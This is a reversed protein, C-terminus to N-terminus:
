EQAEAAPAQGKSGVLQTLKAWADNTNVEYANELALVVKTKRENAKKRDDIVKKSYTESAIKGDETYSVMDPRMKGIERDLKSVEEVAALVANKRAELTKAAMAEVVASKIEPLASTLRDAVASHITGITM